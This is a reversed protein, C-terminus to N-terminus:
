LHLSLLNSKKNISNIGTENHIFLGNPKYDDISKFEDKQIQTQKIRKRKTKSLDWSIYISDYKIKSIDKVIFGNEELRSIIYNKAFIKNFLPLGFVYEPIKFICELRLNDAYTQIKNHCMKLLKDYVVYKEYRKKNINNYLSNINIQSM